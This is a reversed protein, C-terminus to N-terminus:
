TSIQGPAEPSVLNLKRTGIEAGTVKDILLPQVDTGREADVLRTVRGQGHHRRAWTGIMVLVPLFDRGAPTLIYEHRPPHAAYRRKELLGDETLAALRRTLITPAIGLSKRFQDFRTLGQSADRLILMSWTDGVRALGRAIPCPGIALNGTDM